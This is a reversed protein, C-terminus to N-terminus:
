WWNTPDGTVNDALSVYAWSRGEIGHAKDDLPLVTLGYSGAPLSDLPVGFLKEIREQISEWPKVVIEKQQVLKGTADYLMLRHTIAHDKDGNYLGVNVRFQTGIEVGAFHQVPWGHPPFLPLMEGYTGGDARTTYTRAYGSMWSGTRLELAGRVNNDSACQPFLHVVDPYVSRWGYVAWEPPIPPLEPNPNMTQYWTDLPMAVTGNLYEGIEGSLAAGGFATAPWSPRFTAKVRDPQKAPDEPLDSDAYFEFYTLLDHLAGYLDTKWYTDKSGPLHGVIPIAYRTENDGMMYLNTFPVFTADGTINDVMSLWIIAPHNARVDIIPPWKDRVSTPFMDEINAIRVKHPDVTFIFNGNEQPRNGWWPSVAWRLEVTIPEDNDNVVGINHRFQKPDRRDLTFNASRGGFYDLTFTTDSAVHNSYGLRTPVAVVAHGMRGGRAREDPDASPTASQSVAVLQEGWRYPSTLVLADHIVGDGQLGGGLYTLVDNIRLSAHAAIEMNKNKGLATVRRINVAISTSSPNYLWLDSTWYTGRAGPTHGVVPITQEYEEPLTGPLATVYLPPYWEPIPGSPTYVKNPPFVRLERLNKDFEAFGTDGNIPNGSGRVTILSDRGPHYM